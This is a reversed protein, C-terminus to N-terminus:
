RAGSAVAATVINRPVVTGTEAALADQVLGVESKTLKGGEVVKRGLVNIALTTITAALRKGFPSKLFGKVSDYSARGYRALGAWARPGLTAAEGAVM